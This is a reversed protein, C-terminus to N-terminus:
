LVRESRMDQSNSGGVMAAGADLVRWSRLPVQTITLSDSWNPCSMASNCVIGCYVSWIELVFGEGVAGVGPQRQLTDAPQRALRDPEGGDGQMDLLVFVVGFHRVAVNRLRGRAADLAGGLEAGKVVFPAVVTVPEKAFDLAAGLPDRRRGVIGEEVGVPLLAGLLPHIPVDLRVVVAPGRRLGPPKLDDIPLPPM